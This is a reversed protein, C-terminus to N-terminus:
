SSNFAKGSQTLLPRDLLLLLLLPLFLPLPLPLPLLFTVLYFLGLGPKAESPLQKGALCTDTGANAM